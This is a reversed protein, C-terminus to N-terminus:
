TGTQNMMDQWVGRVLIDENSVRESFQSEPFISFHPRGDFRNGMSVIYPLNSKPIEDSTDFSIHSLPAFTVPKALACSFSLAAAGFYLICLWTHNVM